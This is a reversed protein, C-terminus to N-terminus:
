ARRGARLMRRQAAPSAARQGRIQAVRLQAPNLPMAAMQQQQNGQFPSPNMGFGGYPQSFQQLTAGINENNYAGGTAFLPNGGSAFYGAPGGMAGGGMTQGTYGNPSGSLMNQMSNQQQQVQQQRQSAGPQNSFSPTIM